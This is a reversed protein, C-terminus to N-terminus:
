DKRLEYEVKLLEITFKEDGIVVVHQISGTAVIDLVSYLEATYNGYPLSYVQFPISLKDSM